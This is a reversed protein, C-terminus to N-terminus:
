SVRRRASADRSESDLADRLIQEIAAELDRRCEFTRMRVQEARALMQRALSKAQAEIRTM